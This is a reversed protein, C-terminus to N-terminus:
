PKQKPAAVRRVPEATPEGIDVPLVEPTVELTVPEVPAAVIVPRKDLKHGVLIEEATPTYAELYDRVDLNEHRIFILGTETNIVWRLDLLEQINEPYPM